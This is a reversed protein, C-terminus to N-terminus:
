NVKDIGNEFFDENEKDYKFLNGDKQWNIFAYRIEGDYPEMIIGWIFVDDPGILTVVTPEDESSDFYMNSANMIAEIFDQVDEGNKVIEDYPMEMINEFAINGNENRIIIDEVYQNDREVAFYNNTM